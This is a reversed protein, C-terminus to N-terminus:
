VAAMRTAVNAWDAETERPALDFVERIASVPSEFIRLQVLHEGADFAALKAGLREALLAGCLRDADDAADTRALEALTRRALEARAAVGDVSYDTIRDDYRREGLTTALRPDLPLLDELYRDALDRVAGM